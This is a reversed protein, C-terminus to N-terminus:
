NQMHTLYPLKKRHVISNKMNSYIIFFDLLLCCLNLLKIWNNKHRKDLCSLVFAGIITFVAILILSVFVMSKMVKSNIKVILFLSPLVSLLYFVHLSPSLVLFDRLYFGLILNYTLAITFFIIRTKTNKMEFRRLTFIWQFSSTATCLSLSQVAM